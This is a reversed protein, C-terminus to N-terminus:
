IWWGGIRRAAMGYVILTSSIFACGPQWEIPLSGGIFSLGIGILQLGVFQM